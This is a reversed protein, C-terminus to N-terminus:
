CVCTGAIFTFASSTQTSGSFAGAFLADCQWLLWVCLHAGIRTAPQEM